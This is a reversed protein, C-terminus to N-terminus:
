TRASVRKTLLRSTAPSTWTAQQVRPPSQNNGRAEPATTATGGDNCLTCNRQEDWYFNFKNRPQGAVDAASM